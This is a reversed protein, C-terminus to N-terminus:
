DGPHLRDLRASLRANDSETGSNLVFHMEEMWASAMLARAEEDTAGELRLRTYTLKAHPFDTNSLANDIVDSFTRRLMERDFPNRKKPRKM